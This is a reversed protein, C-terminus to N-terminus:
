GRNSNCAVFKSAMSLICFAREDKRNALCFAFCLLGFLDLTRFVPPRDPGLTVSILSQYRLILPCNAIIIGGFM